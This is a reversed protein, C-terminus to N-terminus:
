TNVGWKSPSRLSKLRKLRARSSMKKLTPSSQAEKQDQEAISEIGASSTNTSASEANNGAGAEAGGVDQTQAVDNSAGDVAPAPASAIPGDAASGAPAAAAALVRERERRFLGRREERRREVMKQSVGGFGEKGGAGVMWLGKVRDVGNGRRGKGTAIEMVANADVLRRPLTQVVQFAEMSENGTKMIEPEALKFITLGVRFLTKSGEYFLADWVRCTTEIPLTAAFCSMFWATTALSVTPLGTSVRMDGAALSVTADARDDIKTWLSPLFDRLCLMLVGIDINAGELAVSHTAPLHVSTLITLLHFAREEDNHLFLLLTGALFNLSQCYGIKPNHVAFAQLVNRLARITPTDPSHLTAPPTTTTTSPRSSPAPHPISDPKFHINDPYTRHLDREIHERDNESLHGTSARKLLIDYVGAQKSLIAPGGAYWFWAAGRWEPPIGKRIYRKVKDSRPPFRTPNDIPLNHHKMLAIWKKRRRELYKTYNVNWADYQAVTIDRSQKKFGYIDRPVSILAKLREEVPPMHNIHGAAVQISTEIQPQPVSISQKHPMIYPVSIATPPTFTREVQALPPTEAVAFEQEMNSRQEQNQSVQDVVEMGPDDVFDDAYMDIADEASMEEKILPWNANHQVFESTASADTWVSSRETESWELASSDNTLASRISARLSNAGGDRWFTPNRVSYVSPSATVVTKVEPTPSQPPPSATKKFADEIAKYDPISTAARLISNRVQQSGRAESFSRARGKSPADLTYSTSKSFNHAPTRTPPVYVTSPLIAGANESGGM